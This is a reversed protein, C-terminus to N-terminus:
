HFRQTSAAGAALATELDPIIDRAASGAVGGAQESIRRLVQLAGRTADGLTPARAILEARALVEDESQGYVRAVVADSLDCVLAGAETPDMVVKWEAWMSRIAAAGGPTSPPAGLRASRKLKLSPFRISTADDHYAAYELEGPHRVLYVGRLSEVAVAALTAHPVPVAADFYYNPSGESPEPVGEVPIYTPAQWGLGLLHSRAAQTLETADPESVNPNNVAEARMGHAGQSAFQVFSGSAKHTIVLFEDEELDSLVSTLASEFQGWAQETLPPTKLDHLSAVRHRSSTKPGRVRANASGVPEALPTRGVPEIPQGKSSNSADAQPGSVARESEAM